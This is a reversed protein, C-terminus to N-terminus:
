RDPGVTSAGVIRGDPASGQAMGALAGADSEADGRLRWLRARLEEGTLGVLRPNRLLPELDV